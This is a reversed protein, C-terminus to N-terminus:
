GDEAATTGTFSPADSAPFSELSAETVESSSKDEMSTKLRNLDDRIQVSPAEGFLRAVAAGLRGAPPNYTLKVAVETGGGVEKFRVAGANAVTSHPLSRWSILEGRKDGVIEADWTVDLGAPGKARWHSTGNPLTKVSELHSMFQPLNEFHRWFDYLDEPSRNITVSEEVHVGQNQSVAYSRRAGQRGGTQTSTSMGLANYLECHGSVGRYVLYGGLAGLLAGTMSRQRLGAVLLAGGAASSLLREAGGVNPDSVAPNPDNTRAWQRFGKDPDQMM